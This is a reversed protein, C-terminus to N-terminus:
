VFYHFNKAGSSCEFVVNVATIVYKMVTKFILVPVHHHFLSTKCECSLLDHGWRVPNFVIRM